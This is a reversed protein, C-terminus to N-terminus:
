GKSSYTSKMNMSKVYRHSKDGAVAQNGQRMADDIQDVRQQGAQQDEKYWELRIKMLYARLPTGDENKGVVLSVRSGLDTGSGLASGALDPITILAEEQNVFEYGAQNAQMVRGPYDNVWHCHFGPIDPTTLKARPVSMPIRTRMERAEDIKDAQSTAPNVPAEPGQQSAVLAAARAGFAPLVPTTPPSAQM